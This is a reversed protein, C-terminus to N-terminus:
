FFIRILHITRTSKEILDCEYKLISDFNYCSKM